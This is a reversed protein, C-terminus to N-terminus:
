RNETKLDNWLEDFLDLARGITYEGNITDKTITLFEQEFGEPTDSNGIYAFSHDKYKRFERLVERQAASRKDYNVPTITSHLANMEDCIRQYTEPSYFFKLFQIAAAYREPSDGCEKTIAWFVDRNEGVMVLGEEDPLYFWGLDLDEEIKEMMSISWNGTYLMGSNNRSMIYALSGDPTLQWNSDFYGSQFLSVIHELMNAPYEDTWSVLGINRKQLWLPDHMLIDSRLFHNVWFELHWLEAGGAIIPTINNEMLVSCTEIFDSYNEPKELNFSEFVAKNYVIGVTSGIAEVAYATGNLRFPSSVLDTIESPIPALIGSDAYFVPTKLQVIDGLEGRANLKNLVDEYVNDEYNPTLKISIDPNKDEFDAVTQEIVMNWQTNQYAYVLTIETINYEAATETKNWNSFLNFTDSFLSIVMLILLCGLAIILWFIFFKKM